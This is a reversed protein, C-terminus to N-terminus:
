SAVPDGDADLAGFPAPWGDVTRDAPYGCVARDEVKHSARKPTPITPDQTGTQDAIGDHDRDDHRGMLNVAWLSDFLPTM